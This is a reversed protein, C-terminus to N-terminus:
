DAVAARGWVQAMRLPPAHLAAVQANTLVERIAHRAHRTDRQLFVELPAGRPGIVSEVTWRTTAPRATCPTTAKTAVCSTPVM